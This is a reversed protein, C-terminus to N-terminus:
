SGQSAANPVAMAARRRRTRLSLLTLADFGGSALVDVPTLQVLDGLPPLPPPPSSPPLDVLTNITASDQSCISAYLTGCPM